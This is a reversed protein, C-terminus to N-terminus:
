LRLFCTLLCYQTEAWLACEQALTTASLGLGRFTRFESAADVLMSGSIRLASVSGGFPLSKLLRSFEEFDLVGFAIFQFQAYRNAAQRLHRNKGCFNIRLVSSQNVVFTDASFQVAVKAL